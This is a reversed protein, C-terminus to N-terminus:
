CAFKFLRQQTQFFSPMRDAKLNTPKKVLSQLLKKCCKKQKM